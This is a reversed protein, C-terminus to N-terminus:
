YYTSFAGTGKEYFQNRSFGIFITRGRDRYWSRCIYLENM